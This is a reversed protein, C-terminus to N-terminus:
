ATSGVAHFAAETGIALDEAGSAVLEISDEIDALREKVAEQSVELIGREVPLAVDHLGEGDGAATDAAGLTAEGGDALHGDQGVVTHILVLREVILALAEVALSLTIGVDGETCEIGLDELDVERGVGVLDDIHLHILLRDVLAEGVVDGLPQTVEAIGAEDMGVVEGLIEALSGDVVHLVVEGAALGREVDEIAAAETVGELLDHHLEDGGVIEGEGVEGEEEVDLLDVLSQRNSSAAHIYRLPTGM